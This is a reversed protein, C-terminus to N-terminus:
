SFFKHVIAARPPRTVLSVLVVALASFVIDWVFPELGTQQLGAIAQGPLYWVGVWGTDVSPIHEIFSLVFHTLCGTLMGAVAGAANMRPWYLAFAMPVLFSAALGGSARVIIVQLFEPPHIAAVTALLGVVFTGLYTVRKLVTESAEPHIHRQYIDRVLSSSVVLLFSDVSSMVAAFPAALLLGALWPVGARKTSYVALEPMVRDAAIEMGPLLVKACCFIVVLSLYIVTFYVAVMIISLRLTRNDRFAMLRVMNSPQGASGFPWFVFFSIAAAISLFGSPSERHPGPPRLYVGPQTQGYAYPERHTVRASLDHRVQGPGVLDRDADCTLEIIDVESLRSASPAFQVRTVVRVLNDDPTRIWAGQPVVYAEQAAGERLLTATAHIPPSHKALERTAAPLGGTFYLALVLMVVVGVFMIMGQMVDTWVVARFGGYVVYVIVATSFVSLCLLYDPDASSLWAVRGTVNAVVNVASDYIPVGQLLSVLIQSGAKFQALLYYFIFVVALLTSVVGASASEFRKAFVEAGAQRSVHNLRKGLLGMALLPVVMYGAIWLALVWGHTYILAPFGMFSGGSASTAAFTLALAWVGLSRSGLFYESLFGGKTSGLGSLWALLFVAVLYVLFSVLAMNSGTAVQAVLPGLSLSGTM